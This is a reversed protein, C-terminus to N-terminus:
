CLPFSPMFNAGTEELVLITILELYMGSWDKWSFKYLLSLQILSLDIISNVPQTISDISAAYILIETKLRNDPLAYM